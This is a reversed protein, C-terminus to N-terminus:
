GRLQRAAGPSECSRVPQENAAPWPHALERVSDLSRLGTSSEVLKRRSTKGRTEDSRLKAPPPTMRRSAIRRRSAAHPWPAGDPLVEFAVALPAVADIGDACVGSSSAIM